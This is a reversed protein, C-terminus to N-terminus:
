GGSGSGGTLLIQFAQDSNEWLVPGAFLAQSCMARQGGFGRTDGVSVAPM